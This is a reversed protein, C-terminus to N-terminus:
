HILCHLGGRACPSLSVDPDRRIPQGCAGVRARSLLLYRLNQTVESKAAGRACPVVPPLECKANGRIETGWARVPHGDSTFCM